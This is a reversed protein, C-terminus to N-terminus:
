ITLNLNDNYQKATTRIMEFLREGISEAILCSAFSAVQLIQGDNFKLKLALFHKEHVKYPEFMILFCFEAIQKESPKVTKLFNKIKENGFGPKLLHLNTSQQKLLSILEPSLVQEIRNETQYKFYQFAENINPNSIAWDFGKRSNSEDIFMLSEGATKKKKIAKAFVFRSVINILVSKMKVSPLPSDGAFLTVMRNLYHFLVATGIIEPAEEKNFPPKQIIPNEFDLNKLAWLIIKDERTIPKTKGNSIRTITNLLDKETGFVMISHADVCYNCKNTESISTAIAEKLSRKVKGEVLVTECLTAWVSATLEVNLSHLVFPEALKGFNLEIHKYLQKLKGHAKKKQIHKIHNIQM